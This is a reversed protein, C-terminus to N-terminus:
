VSHHYATNFHKFTWAINLVKKKKVSSSICNEHARKMNQFCTEHTNQEATVKKKECRPEYPVIVM